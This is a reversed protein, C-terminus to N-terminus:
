KKPAFRIGAAVKALNAGMKPALKAAAKATEDKDTQEAQFTAPENGRPAADLKKTLEDVKAALAKADAENAKVIEAVHESACQAFPKGEGFWKSGNDGFAARYDQETFTASLTKSAEVAPAAPPQPAAEAPPAALEVAPKAENAPTEPKAEVAVTAAEAPKQETMSQEQTFITVAVQDGDKLNTSTNMDAGYPCVAVGRLSWKRIIVAPGMVDNGNINAVMGSPLKELILQGGGFNISAEYPVGEKAKYIIETARDEGKYPVLAGSAVLDGSSTDFKNLYGIVEEDDHCYDIPLRDKHITMGALDHVVKGWYWHEIPQGSRAVMRVPASKANEGNSGFEFAGISMRLAAQPVQKTETAM